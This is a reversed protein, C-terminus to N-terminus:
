DKGIELFKKREFIDAYTKLLVYLTGIIFLTVTPTYSAKSFGNIIGSLLTFVFVAFMFYKLRKVDTYMFDEFYYSTKKRSKYFEYQLGARLFVNAALCAWFWPSTLSYLSSRLDNATLNLDNLIGVLILTYMSIVIVITIHLLVVNFEMRGRYRREDWYDLDGAYKAMNEINKNIPSREALALRFALGIPIDLIFLNFMAYVNLDQFLFCYLILLNGAVIQAVPNFQRSDPTDQMKM